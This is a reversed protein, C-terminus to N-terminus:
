FLTRRSLKLYIGSKFERVRLPLIFGGWTHLPNNTTIFHCHTLFFYIPGQQFEERYAWNGLISWSMRTFDQCWFEVGTGLAELNSESTSLIIKWWYILGCNLQTLWCPFLSLPNTEWMGGGSHIWYIVEDDSLCQNTFTSFCWNTM